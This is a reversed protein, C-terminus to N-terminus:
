IRTVSLVIAEALAGAGITANFISVYIALAPLTAQSSERLIWSQFGVFVIAVSALCSSPWGTVSRPAKKQM